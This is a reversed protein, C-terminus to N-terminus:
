ATERVARALRPGMLMRWRHIAAAALCRQADVLPISGAATGGFAHLEGSGLLIADAGAAQASRFLRRWLIRAHREGGAERLGRRLREVLPQWRPDHRVELGARALRDQYLRTALVADSALLAVSRAAAPLARRVEDALDIVPLRPPPLRALAIHAACCTLAVFSAGAAELRDLGEVITRGLAESGEAVCLGLTHILLPPAEEDTRAGYQARCEDRLKDVLVAAARPTTTLIGVSPLSSSLSV